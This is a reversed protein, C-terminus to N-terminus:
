LAKHGVTLEVVWNAKDLAARNYSGSTVTSVKVTYSASPGLGTVTFPYRVGHISLVGNELHGTGLMEGTASTVVVEAGPAAGAYPSPLAKPCPLQTGGQLDSFSDRFTRTPDCTPIGLTLDAVVLQGTLTRTTAPSSPAPPNSAAACGALLVTLLGAGGARLSGPRV